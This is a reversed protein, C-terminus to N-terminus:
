TRSWIKLLAVRLRMLVRREIFERIGNTDEFDAHDGSSVVLAVTNLALLLLPDTDFEGRTANIFSM